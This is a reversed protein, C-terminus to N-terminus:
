DKTQDSITLYLLIMSSAFNIYQLLDYFNLRRLRPAIIEDGSQLGLEALSQGSYVAENFDEFLLTDMRMIYMEEFHYYSNVGGAENIAEWFSLSPDFRYMGPSGFEGRLVIRMKPIIVVTPSKAYPKFKATIVKAAQEVTLGELRIVGLAGLRIFGEGDIFMEVDHFSSLFNKGDPTRNGEYVFLQLGDGKSFVYDKQNFGAATTTLPITFLFCVIVFRLALISKM